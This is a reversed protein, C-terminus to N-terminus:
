EGTNRVNGSLRPRSSTAELPSTPPPSGKGVLYEWPCEQGHKRAPLLFSGPERDISYKAVASLTDQTPDLKGKSDAPTFFLVYTGGGSAPYSLWPDDDCYLKAPKCHNVVDTANWGLTVSVNKFATPSIQLKLVVTDEGRMSVTSCGLASLLLLAAVAIEFHRKMNM